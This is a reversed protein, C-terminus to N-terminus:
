IGRVWIRGCLRSIRVFKHLPFPDGSIVGGQSPPIGRNSHGIEGSEIHRWESHTEQLKQPRKIHHVVCSQSWTAPSSQHM